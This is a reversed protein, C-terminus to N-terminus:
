GGGHGGHEGPHATSDHTRSLIPPEQAFCRHQGDCAAVRVRGEGSPGGFPMPSRFLPQPPPGTPSPNRRAASNAIPPEHKM